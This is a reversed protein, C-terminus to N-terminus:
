YRIRANKLAWPVRNIPQPSLHADLLIYDPATWVTTMATQVSLQAVPKELFKASFDKGNLLQTRVPHCMTRVTARGSCTIEMYPKGRGSWTPHVDPRSFKLVCNGYRSRAHGSSPGSPQLQIPLKWILQVRTRVLASQRGSPLIQIAIRAKLLRV